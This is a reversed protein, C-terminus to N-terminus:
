FLVFYIKLLFKLYFLLNLKGKLNNDQSLEKAAQFMVEDQM